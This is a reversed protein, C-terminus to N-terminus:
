RGLAPSCRLELSELESLASDNNADEEESESSSSSIIIDQLALQLETLSSSPSSTQHLIGSFSSLHRQGQEDRPQDDNPSQQQQQQQGVDDNDAEEEEEEEEADIMTM